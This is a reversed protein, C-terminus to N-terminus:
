GAKKETEKYTFTQTVEVTKGGRVHFEIKQFDNEKQLDDFTSKVDRKQKVKVTKISGDKMTVEINTIDENRIHQLVEIEGMSHASTAKAIQARLEFGKSHLELTIPEKMALFIKEVLPTLNLLFYGKHEESHFHGLSFMDSIELETDMVFTTEFDTILWISVGLLSMKEYAYRLHNANEQSMFDKIYKLKEVPIGYQKRLESMVVLIFLDRPNYMRWKTGRDNDEPIAGREEWDNLQRYSLGTAEYVDSAKYKKTDDIPDVM